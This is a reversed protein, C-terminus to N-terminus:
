LLDNRNIPPFSHMKRAYAVCVTNVYVEQLSTSRRFASKYMYGYLMRPVHGCKEFYIYIKLVLEQKQM